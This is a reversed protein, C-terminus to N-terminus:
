KQKIAEIFLRLEINNSNSGPKGRMGFETKDFTAIGEYGRRTGGWPDDGAGVLKAKINLTKTVGHFSLDGSIMIDDGSQSVKKSVFTATPHKDADIYDDSKLHKDRKAHNSDLSTTDVKVKVSSKSIDKDDFNLEGELKNFRGFLWSFGMHSAKFQIFSHTPDIDYKETKALVSASSILALALATSKFLTKM